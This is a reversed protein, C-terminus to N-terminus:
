EEEQKVAGAVTDRHTLKHSELGGRNKFTRGCIDCVLDGTNAVTEMVVKPRERLTQQTIVDRVNKPKNPNVRFLEIDDRTIEVISQDREIIKRMREALDADDTSWLGNTFEALVGPQRVIETGIVQVKDPILQVVLSGRLSAFYYLDGM